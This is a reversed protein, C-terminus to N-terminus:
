TENWEIYKLWMENLKSLDWKMYEQVICTTMSDSFIFFTPTENHIRQRVQIHLFYACNWKIDIVFM